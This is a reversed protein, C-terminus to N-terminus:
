LDGHTVGSRQGKLRPDNSRILMPMGSLAEDCRQLTERELRDMAEATYFALHPSCIVQDMALLASLPHGQPSLPEQGFVDLGAGAIMGGRLAQLLAAEDVLEGRSVNILFASPKMATLEECGIIGRTEANLVSHLSVIDSEVLLDRLDERKEVGAALMTESTLWPDYGIVRARFGRGAMRALSSGIHGCGVLGVTKGALDNGLWRSEPWAWGHHTMENLLPKVKRLLLLMLMFAAEAVTSDAYDPINVVPISRQQAAVVDIADIGVGYKVIARLNPAADLVAASIPQYCTLLLDASALNRALEDDKLNGPLLVLDVGRERLGADIGPSYIESDARVVVAQESM